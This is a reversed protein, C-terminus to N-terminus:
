PRHKYRAIRHGHEDANVTYGDPTTTNFLMYGNGDFYYSESVGDGNGDIWQWSNTPVTMMMRIGGDMVMSRGSDQM